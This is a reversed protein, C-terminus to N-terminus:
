QQPEPPVPRPPPRRRPNRIDIDEVFVWKGNVFRFADFINMEPVYFQYHGELFSHTPAMRDFVIIRESHRSGDFIYDDFRIIMSVKASYEFIIRYNKNEGYQFIQNGFVPMGQDNITLSEIIRKRTLPNDGRWGLLTYLDKQNHRHHIMDSYYAGYWQEHDLSIFRPEENRIGTDTLPILTGVGNVSEATQFFGFYEFNDGRLPMYWSIIRFRGDPSRLMSVTTLSDFSYHFSGDMGLVQEFYERFKQNAAKRQEDEELVPLQRSLIKLSDEHVRFDTQTIAYFPLFILLFGYILSVFRLMFLQNIPNRLDHRYMGTEIYFKVKYSNNCLYNDLDNTSDKVIV